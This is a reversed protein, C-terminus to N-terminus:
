ELLETVPVGLSKASERTSIAAIMFEALPFCGCRPGPGPRPGARPSLAEPRAIEELM